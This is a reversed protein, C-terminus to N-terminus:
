HKFVIKSSYANSTGSFNTTWRYIQSLNFFQSAVTQHLPDPVFLSIILKFYEQHCNRKNYLIRPLLEIKKKSVNLASDLLSFLALSSTNMSGTYTTYQFLMFWGFTFSVAAILEHMYQELSINSVIAQTLLGRKWAHLTSKPCTFCFSSFTGTSAAQWCKHINDLIMIM